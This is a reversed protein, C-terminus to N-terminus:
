IVTTTSLLLPFPFAFMFLGYYHQALILFHIKKGTVLPIFHMLLNTILL